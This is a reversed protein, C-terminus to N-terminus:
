KGKATMQEFMWERLAEWHDTELQESHIFEGIPTLGLSGLFEQVRPRKLFALLPLKYRRALAQVRIKAEIYDTLSDM